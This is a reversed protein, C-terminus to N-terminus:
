GALEHIVSATPLEAPAANQNGGRQGSEEPKPSAAPAPLAAESASRASGRREAYNGHILPNYASYQRQQPLPPSQAFPSGPSGPASATSVVSTAMSAGTKDRADPGPRLGGGASFSTGTPYEDNDNARPAPALVPITPQRMPATPDMDNNNGQRARKRKRLFFALFLLCGILLAGGVGAGVGIYMATQSSTGSATSPSPNGSDSIVPTGDPTTTTTPLPSDPPSSSTITSAQTSTQTPPTSTSAPPPTSATSTPKPQKTSSPTPKMRPNWSITGGLSGPLSAIVRLTPMVFLVDSPDASPDCSCQQEPDDDDPTDRTGFCGSWDDMCDKLKVYQQDGYDGKTPCQDARFSSDTCGALYYFSDEGTGRCANEEVCYDGSACCQWAQGTAANGCPIYGDVATSHFAYYCTGNSVDFDPDPTDSM